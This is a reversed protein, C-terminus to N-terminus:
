MGLIAIGLQEAARLVDPKDLMIVRGSGLVIVKGGAEHINQITQVGITPVDARMDHDISCTKFFVWPRRSCLDGARAIMADTGESAEFAIVDRCRVAMSQGIGLQVADNFLPWGFDIDATVGAPPQTQTMLGPTALHDPIYTRNDILTIGNRQLEDALATLMTGTRRDRSLTRYWLRAARLDPLYHLFQFRRYKRHHEVGGVMVATTVNWKRLSRIWKGLRAIGVQQFHSCRAPLTRDYQDALGICCLQNGAHLIGDAVLLPLTGNGAILGIPQNASPSCSGEGAARPLSSAQWDPSQHGTPTPPNPADSPCM